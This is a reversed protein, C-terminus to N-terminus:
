NSSGITRRKLYANLHAPRCCKKYSKGSACSCLRGTPIRLLRELSHDVESGLWHGAGREKRIQEWVTTKLLWISVHLLYDAATNASWSWDGDSPFMPCIVDPFYFHPHGKLTDRSLAPDICRAKPFAPPESYTVELLFASEELLLNSLVPDSKHEAHCKLSHRIKGGPEMEIPGDRQLDALVYRCEGPLPIPEVIVQWLRYRGSESEIESWQSCPFMQQMAAM